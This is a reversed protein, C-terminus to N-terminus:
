LFVGICVLILSGLIGTIISARDLNTQHIRTRGKGQYCRSEM